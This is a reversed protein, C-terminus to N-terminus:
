FTEFITRLRIWEKTHLGSITVGECGGTNSELGDLETCFAKGKARIHTKVGKNGDYSSVLAFWDSFEELYDEFKLVREKCKVIRGAEIEAETEAQHCGFACAFALAFVGIKNRM